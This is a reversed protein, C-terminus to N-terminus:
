AGTCSADDGAGSSSPGSSSGGSSSGGSGSSGSSSGGSSASGDVSGSTLSAADGTNATTPTSADADVFARDSNGLLANCAVALASLAGFSVARALLPLPPSPPRNGASPADRPPAM